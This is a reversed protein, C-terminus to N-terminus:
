GEGTLPVPRGGGARRERWWIVGFAPLLLLPVVAVFQFSEVSAYRNVEALADGSLAALAEAGGAAEMRAADFVAGMRPLVFQIALGAAFGM